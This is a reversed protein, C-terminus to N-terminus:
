NMPMIIDFQENSKTSQAQSEHDSQDVQLIVHPFPVCVLDLPMCVCGSFPPTDQLPFVISMWSTSQPVHGAPVLRTTEYCGM